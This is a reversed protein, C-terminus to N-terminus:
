RKAKDKSIELTNTLKRDIAEPFEKYMAAKNPAFLDPRQQMLPTYNYDKKVSYTTVTREFVNYDGYREKGDIGHAEVLYINIMKIYDDLEKKQERFKIGFEVLENKTYNEINDPNFMQLIM